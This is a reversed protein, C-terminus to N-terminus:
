LIHLIVKNMKFVLLYSGFSNIKQEVKQLFWNGIISSVVGDQSKPNTSFSPTAM